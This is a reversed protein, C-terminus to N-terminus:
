FGPINKFTTNAYFEDDSMAKEELIKIREM